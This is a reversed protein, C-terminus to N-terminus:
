TPNAMEMLAVSMNTSPSAAAFLGLFLGDTSSRHLVIPRHCIFYHIDNQAFRFIEKAYALHKAKPEAHCSM